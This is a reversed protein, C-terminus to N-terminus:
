KAVQKLNVIGQRNGSSILFNFTYVGGSILCPSITVDWNGNSFTTSNIQKTERVSITVSGSGIMQGTDSDIALGTFYWTKNTCNQTQSADKGYGLKIQSYSTKNTTNVFLGITFKEKTYDLSSPLNIEFYGDSFSTSNSEGTEKVIATVNGEPIALGINFDLAYGKIAYIPDLGNSKASSFLVILLALMGFIPLKHM